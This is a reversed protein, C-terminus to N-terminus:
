PLNDEIVKPLAEQIQGIQNALNVTDLITSVPFVVSLGSNEEFIIKPRSTQQSIAIDQYPLYAAVIGILFCTSIANTGEISVIEVKNLVPGGSNGPFTQCDIFFSKSRGAKCDKIRALTGGRVIPLNEIQDVLGMPFGLLFIGDGECLDNAIPNSLLLCNADDKFFSLQGIEKQLINANIPLVAVDISSDSHSTWIDKDNNKLAVTFEHSGGNIKEFRLIVANQGQFVHRNTVLFVRARSQGNNEIQLTQGYLFGTGIWKTTPVNPVGIAVVSKFYQNPILAM